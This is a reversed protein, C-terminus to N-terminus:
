RSTFLLRKGDPTVAPPLNHRPHRTRRRPEGGATPVVYVDVNCHYNGAFAIWQGDASFVPNAEDGDATTLRRVDTGDLKATWLDGAYAFSVRGASVAPQALLRTDTTSVQASAPVPALLAALALARAARLASRLAPM